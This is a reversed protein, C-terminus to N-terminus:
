QAPAPVAGAEPGFYADDFTVEAKGTLATVKEQVLTNRVEETMQERVEDLPPAGRRTVEIVHYGFQTRVIEGVKGVEFSFAAQEFEPVMQGRGFSGLSGGEKGSFTDDSETKAVESFDAGAVIKAKISEARAKAQEETLTTEPKAAPSGVFAVLIHRADVTELSAKKSEYLASVQADTPVTGAEIRELMAAALTNERVLALQAAIKPDKDLQTKVADGALVRMRVYDDAFARKGQQAVYMQYEPPLSALAAEFESQHIEKEGVRLVVPDAGASAPKKDDALSSFACLAILGLSVLNKKM